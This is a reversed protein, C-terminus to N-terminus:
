GVAGLRGLALEDQVLAIGHPGLVIGAILYGVVHPQKISRLLLGLVLIALIAGVAYPMMPDLHM